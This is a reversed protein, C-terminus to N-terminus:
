MKISGGVKTWGCVQQITHSQKQCNLAFQICGFYPCLKNHGCAVSPRIFIRVDIFIRKKSVHPCLSGFTLTLSIIDRCPRHEKWYGLWRSILVMWSIQPHVRSKNNLINALLYTKYRVSTFILLNLRSYKATLCIIVINANRVKRLAFITVVHCVDFVPRRGVGEKCVSICPRFIKAVALLFGGVQERCQAVPAVHRQGRRPAPEDAFKNSSYTPMTWVYGRSKCACGRGLSARPLRWGLSSKDDDQVQNLVLWICCRQRNSHTNM